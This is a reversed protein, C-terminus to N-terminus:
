LEPGLEAVHPSPFVPARVGLGLRLKWMQCIFALVSGGTPLHISACAGWVQRRSPSAQPESVGWNGHCGWLRMEALKGARSTGGGICSWVGGPSSRGGAGRRGRSAHLADWNGLLQGRQKAVASLLEEGFSGECGWLRPTPPLWSSWAPSSGVRASRQALGRKRGQEPSSFYQFDPYSVSLALYPQFTVGRPPGSRGGLQALLLRFSVACPSLLSM